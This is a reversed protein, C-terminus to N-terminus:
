LMDLNLSGKNLLDHQYVMGLSKWMKVSGDASGSLLRPDHPHHKLTWIVDTHAHWSFNMEQLSDNSAIFTRIVGDM